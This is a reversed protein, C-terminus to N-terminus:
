DIIDVFDEFLFYLRTIACLPAIELLELICWESLETDMCAFAVGGTSGLSKTLDGESLILSPSVTSAIAADLTSQSIPSGPIMFDQVISMVILEDPNVTLFDSLDGLVESLLMNSLVGDSVVLQGQPNAAVKVDFLREGTTLLSALGTPQAASTLSSLSGM